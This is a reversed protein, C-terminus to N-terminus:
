LAVLLLTLISGLSMSMFLSKWRPKKAEELEDDLTQIQQNYINETENLTKQCSEFKDNIILNEEKILNIQNTLETSTKELLKIKKIYLGNKELEVVVRKSDEVSFCILEDNTTQLEECNSPITVLGSLFLFLTICIVTSIHKM